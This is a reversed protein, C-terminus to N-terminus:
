DPGPLAVARDIRSIVKPPNRNAWDNRHTFLGPLAQPSRHSLIVGLYMVRHFSNTLTFDHFEINRRYVTHATEIVLHLVHAM